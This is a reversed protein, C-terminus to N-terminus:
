PNVVFSFVVTDSYSETSLPSQGAPIRAFLPVSETGGATSSINVAGAGDDWNLTRSSDSYLEYILPTTGTANMLRQGPNNAAGGDLLLDIDLGGTCNFSLSTNVDLNETSGSLYTGFGINSSNLACNDAVDASIDIDAAKISQSMGLLGAVVFSAVLSVSLKRSM